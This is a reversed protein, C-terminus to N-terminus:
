CPCSRSRSAPGARRRRWCRSSALGARPPPTRWGACNSKRSSARSVSSASWTHQAILTSHDLTGEYIHGIQEVDLTRFSLRRSETAGAQTTTLFQLARLIERVTLDDVPLPHAPAADWPQDDTRGELFGFRDPDFLGGGYPPMRLRDHTIGAYVARFTALLRQWAASRLELPEDGFRDSQETLQDYLTSAAYNDDYLQEGLPLLNREEAYLLFVLRMITTAAAEYVRHPAVGALMKGDSDLNARSISAVLLEVARRVQLGLTNTVDAQSTASETLLGELQDPGAAAFFRQAGLVAAFANLLHAESGESFLSTDFTAHGGVSGPPAYVVTFDRGNTVMGVTVGLARCLVGTRDIPSAAWRDGVPRCDLPTGVPYREVLVRPGGDKNALVYEPRLTAGHEPVSFAVHDPIQPGTRLREGWQLVDRLLYEIWVTAQGTESWDMAAARERVERRTDADLQPLGDPFARRLVPLTLFQGSPEILTLWDAHQAGVRVKGRLPSNTRRPRAM